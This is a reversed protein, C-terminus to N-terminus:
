SSPAGDDIETNGPITSATPDSISTINSLPMREPWSTIRASAKPAFDHMIPRAETSVAAGADGLRQVDQAVFEADGHAQAADVRNGLDVLVHQHLLSM